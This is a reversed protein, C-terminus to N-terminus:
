ELQDGEVLRRVVKQAKSGLWRDYFYQGWSLHPIRPAQSPDLSLVLHFGPNNTKPGRVFQTNFFRVYDDLAHFGLSKFREIWWERPKVTQHLQVGDVIDEESSVSMIWLGHPALHNKVNAALQDLDRNHIHELLEWSTVVEFLIRERKKTSSDVYLDFSKTIDCTFLFEPITAWEMRKRIKSYDSGELGVALCGSDICDKVFGGGACGLDLIKLQSRAYTDLYLWYLKRNFRKNRSNNSRTGKPILHDPSEYAIERECVLTVKEPFFNRKEAPPQMELSM